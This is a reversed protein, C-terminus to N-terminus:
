RFPTLPYTSLSRVGLSPFCRGDRGGRGVSPSRKRSSRLGPDRTCDDRRTSGEPLDEERERAFRDRRRAGDQDEQPHGPVPEMTHQYFVCFTLHSVCRSLDRVHVGVLSHNITFDCFPVSYIYYEHLRCDEDSCFIGLGGILFSEVIPNKCGLSDGCYGWPYGSVLDSLIGCRVTSIVLASGVYDFLSNGPFLFKSSISPVHSM